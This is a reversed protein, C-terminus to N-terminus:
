ITACACKRNRENRKTGNNNRNQTKYYAGLVMNRNNTFPEVRWSIVYTNFTSIVPMQDGM